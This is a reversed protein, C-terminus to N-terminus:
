STCKAKMNTSSVIVFIQFDSLLLRHNRNFFEFRIKFGEVHSKKDPLEHTHSRINQLDDAVVHIYGDDLM